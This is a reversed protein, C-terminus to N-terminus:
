GDKKYQSKLLRLAYSEPLNYLSRYKIYLLCLPTAFEKNEVALNLIQELPQIKEM